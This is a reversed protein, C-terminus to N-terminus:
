IADSHHAGEDMIQKDSKPQNDKLFRRIAVRILRSVSTDLQSALLRLKVVEDKDLGRVNIQAKISMDTAGKTQQFSVVDQSHFTLCFFKMEALM